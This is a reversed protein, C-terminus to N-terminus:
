KKVKKVFGREQLTNYYERVLKSGIGYKELVGFEIDALVKGQNALSRIEALAKVKEDYYSM